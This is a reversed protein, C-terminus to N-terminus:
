SPSLGMLTRAALSGGDSMLSDGAIAAALAAASANCAACAAVAACAALVAMAAAAAAACAAALAPTPLSVPAICFASSTCALNATRIASRLAFSSASAALAWKAPAL